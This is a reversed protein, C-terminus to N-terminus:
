TWRKGKIMYRSNSVNLVVLEENITGIDMLVDVRGICIIPKPKDWLMTPFIVYFERVYSSVRNPPAKMLPMWGFDSLQNYFEIM